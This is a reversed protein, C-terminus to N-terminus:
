RYRYRNVVECYNDVVTPEYRPTEREISITMDKCNFDIQIDLDRGIYQSITGRVRYSDDGVLQISNADLFAAEDGANFVKVWARNSAMAPVASALILSASIIAKKM